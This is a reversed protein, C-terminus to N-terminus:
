LLTKHRISRYYLGLAVVVGAAVLAGMLDGPAQTRTYTVVQRIIFIVCMMMGSVILLRHVKLLLM